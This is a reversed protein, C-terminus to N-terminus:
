SVYPTESSTETPLVVVVPETHPSKFKLKADLHQCAVMTKVHEQEDDRIALFVDYLNNVVPRREEPTRTSQFEDFM